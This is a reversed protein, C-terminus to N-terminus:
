NDRARDNGTESFVVHLCDLVRELPSELVMGKGTPCMASNTGTFLLNRRSGTSIELRAMGERKVQLRAKLATTNWSLKFYRCTFIVFRKHTYYLCIIAHNTRSIQCLYGGPPPPYEWLNGIRTHAAWRPQSKSAGSKFRPRWKLPTKLFPTYYKLLILFFFFNHIM